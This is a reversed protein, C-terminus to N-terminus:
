AATMSIKTDAMAMETRLLGNVRAFKEESNGVNKKQVRGKLAQTFLRSGRVKLL